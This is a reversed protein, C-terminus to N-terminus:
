GYEKLKIIRYANDQPSWYIINIKSIIDFTSSERLIDQLTKAVVDEYCM